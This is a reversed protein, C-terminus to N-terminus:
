QRPYYKGSPHKILDNERPKPKLMQRRSIHYYEWSYCIWSSRGMGGGRRRLLLRADPLQGFLEVGVALALLGQVGAEGEGVEVVHHLLQAGVLGERSFVLGHVLLVQGGADEAQV